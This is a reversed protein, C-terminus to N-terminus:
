QWCMGQGMGMGMGGKSAGMGKGPGGMPCNYGAEIAKERIQGRIEYIEKHLAGVQAPDSDPQALLERLLTQKEGLSQRLAETEKLFQERQESTVQSGQGGGRHQGKAWVESMSAMMVVALALIMVTRRM